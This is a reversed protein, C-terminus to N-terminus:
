QAGITLTVSQKYKHHQKIRQRNSKKKRKGNKAQKQRAKREKWKKFKSLAFPDIKLIEELIEQGNKEKELKAM